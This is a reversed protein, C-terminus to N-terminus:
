IRENCLVEIEVPAGGPPVDFPILTSKYGDRIGEFRYRGPKLEITKDRVMGVVGVGRVLVKTLGDSLVRVPVLEGYSEVLADLEAAAGALSPSDIIHAVSARVADKADAMVNASSLRDPRALHSDIRAKVALIAKATREGEVVKSSVVGQARLEAYLDRVRDWRDDAAARQAAAILREVRLESELRAVENILSETEPRVPFLAEAGSLSGQARPLDRAAVAELGDRIFASFRREDRQHELASLRAKIDARMPALALAEGLLVIEKDLDNEARVVAARELVELLPPLADIRSKLATAQASDPALALARSVAKLAPEFADHDYANQAEDLAKDIAGGHTDLLARAATDAELLRAAAATYDSAAFLSVARAKDALVVDRAEADFAEVGPKTISPELESEFVKLSELFTRRAEPASSDISEAVVHPDMSESQHLTDSAFFSLGLVAGAAIAVLVAFQAVARNKQRSAQERAHDLKDNLM